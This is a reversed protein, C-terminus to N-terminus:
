IVILHMDKKLIASQSYLAERFHVDFASFLFRNVNFGFHFVGNLNNEHM